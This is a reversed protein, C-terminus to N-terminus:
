AIAEVARLGEAADEERFLAEYAARGAAEAEARWDRDRTPDIWIPEPARRRATRRPTNM